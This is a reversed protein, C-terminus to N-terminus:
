SSGLSKFFDEDIAATVTLPKVGLNLEVMERVLQQGDVLTIAAKTEEVWSKAGNTFASTTIFVGREYGGSMSGKLRQVPDIGVNTGNAYRKAQVAVKVDVFPVVGIADIGGDHSRQTVQVEM